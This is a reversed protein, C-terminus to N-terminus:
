PAKGAFRARDDAATNRKKAGPPIWVTRSQSHRDFGTQPDREWILWSYATATSADPDWKGKVMPVREAFHAITSPATKAFVSRWREESELWASRLLMAVGHSTEMLARSLFESALVFPPNTIIWDPRFPCTARDILEIFNGVGYGRGYDHVDSAYLTEFFPRLPEAMHGEGAAPEWCSCGAVASRGIVEEILARSAWPPTPFFDLSDDPEVRQAMVAYNGKPTTTM